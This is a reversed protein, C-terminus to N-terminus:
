GLETRPLPVWRDPLLEDIAAAPHSDLRLLVDRVYAVPDVQHADCTSVLSYLGALHEGAEQHGVFLFNKRGLAAIRLARESANNDVPIRADDVFRTLPGWQNLSYQIAVGLPSKPPHLGQQELLWAHFQEMAARGQTQRLERHALTRVIGREKAAHEVRYVARILELAQKAEVPATSQAEFFKRRAHALCGARTRGDVETVRNYGTYADVVLTGKTGGLVQQPTQGSRSQSFRYAIFDGDLFTWLYGRQDPSQMKLPTEDAQVVQAQAVRARLREWLPRLREAAGHFLDCLTSRSMPVGLRSYQKALRHLPLSDGCKMVVLHAIFGPGYHGKDLAKPPSPATVIHQGCRCARKQQVHEQRVFYGPVYEYVITRKGEGLPSLEQGGCHPCQPPPVVPHVITQTRLQERLAQRERRKNLAQQREAEPDRARERKLEREIPEVKESKKGMLRRELKEVHVQLARLQGLAQAHQEQLKQILQAQEDLVQQQRQILQEQTVIVQRQQEAMQRLALAEERWPCIHEPAAIELM